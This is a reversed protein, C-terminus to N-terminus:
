EDWAGSWCLACASVGHSVTSGVLLRRTSRVCVCVCACVCVYIYVEYIGWASSGQKYSVLASRFCIEPVIHPRPVVRTHTHTHTHTHTDSVMMPQKWRNVIARKEKRWMVHAM